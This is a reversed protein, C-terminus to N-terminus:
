PMLIARMKDLIWADPVDRKELVLMWFNDALIEEPHIIYNTNQGIQKFYDPTERPSLMKPGTGNLLAGKSVTEELLPRWHDGEGEIVLLRFDLYDFFSGGTYTDSKTLTVPVVQTVADSNPSLGALSIYHEFRPADPNTLRQPALAAPLAIENCRHFGIIAYLRDRLDANHSSMVHFLEHTLIKLMKASDGFFSDPLIIAPGRCHPANGEMAETARVLFITEPLPVHLGELKGRLQEVVSTLAKAESADWTKVQDKLFQLYAERSVPEKSGLRIQRELPQMHQVFDDVKAVLEQGEGLSAFHVTAQSTLMVDEQSFVAASNFLLLAAMVSGCLRRFAFVVSRFGLQMM